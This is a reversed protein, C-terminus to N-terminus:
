AILWKHQTPVNLTTFQGPIEVLNKAQYMAADAHAVLDEVNNGHEPYIAVGVSATLRLNTSRFRFPISAIKEIIRVPLASIDDNQELAAILAFEDGGVRAFMEVGRVLVSIESATRLLVSDGVGHGFTDNIFKFEDLDFYLLAFKNSNRRSANIMFALQKQFQHRNCLGTLPDHEALYLLQQATKREHTIDEYIWLRGLLGKDSDLVPFSLQTLSAATTSTLRSANALKM